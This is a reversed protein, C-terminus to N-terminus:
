FVLDVGMTFGTLDEGSDLPDWSFLDLKFAASPHFNYRLSVQQLSFKQNALNQKVASALPQVVPHLANIHGQDIPQEYEGITATLTYENIRKGFTFYYVENISDGSDKIGYDAYEFTALWDQYDIDFGYYYYLGDGSFTLAQKAQTVDGPTILGAQLAPTLAADITPNTVANDLSDFEVDTVFAGGFLTLWDRNLEFNASVIDSLSGAYTASSTGSQLDGDWNSYGVSASLSWDGFYSSNVFRIGEVNSFGLETYVTAPLLNYNHGYGVKEFESKYFAPLIIRGAQVTWTDSLQYSLYAWRADVDFDDKGEAMLQVTASLGHGLDASAQIAFLSNDKFSLDETINGNYAQEDGEIVGNGNLDKPDNFLMGAKISAFGNFVIEANATISSTALLVSLAIKNMKKM